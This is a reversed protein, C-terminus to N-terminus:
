RRRLFPPRIGVLDGFEAVFIILILLVFLLFWVAYSIRARPSRPNWVSGGNAEAFRAGAEENRFWYRHRQGALVDGLDDSFDMSSVVETPRVPLFLRSGLPGREQCAHWSLDADPPVAVLRYMGRAVFAAFFSLILLAFLAGVGGWILTAPVHYKVALLPILSPGLLYATVGLAALPLTYPFLAEWFWRRVRARRVAPDPPQEERRHLEECTACVPANVSYIRYPRPQRVWARRFIKTIRVAGTATAGCRICFPPFVVSVTPGAVEIGDAPEARGM